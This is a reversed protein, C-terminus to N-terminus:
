KRREKKRVPQMSNSSFALDCGGFVLRHMHPFFSCFVLARWSLRHKLLNHYLAIKWLHCMEIVTFVLVSIIFRQISTYSRKKLVKMIIKKGWETQMKTCSAAHSLDISTSTWLSHNPCHLTMKKMLLHVNAPDKGQETPTNLLLTLYM